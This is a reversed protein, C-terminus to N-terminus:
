RAKRHTDPNEPSNRDTQPHLDGRHQTQVSALVRPDQVDRIRVRAETAEIGSSEVALEDSESDSEIM